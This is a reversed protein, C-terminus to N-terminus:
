RFLQWGISWCESEGQSRMFRSAMPIITESDGLFVTLPTPADNEADALIRRAEMEIQHGFLLQPRESTRCRYRIEGRSPLTSIRFFVAPLNALELLRLVFAMTSVRFRRRIQWVLDWSGQRTRLHNRVLTEPMLLEAAIRNVAAEEANSGGAIRFAPDTVDSGQVRALIIHGIEHAVTFRARERSVDNRYRILLGGEVTKGLYGDASMKRSEIRTVGFTQAISEIDVPLAAKGLAEAHKRALLIAARLHSSLIRM